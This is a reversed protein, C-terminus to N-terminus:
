VRFVYIYIYVVQLYLSVYNYQVTTVTQWASRGYIQVLIIEMHVYHRM